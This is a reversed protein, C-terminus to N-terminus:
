RRPKEGHRECLWAALCPVHIHYSDRGTDDGGRAFEIEYEVEDQTVPALCIACRAGVGSGGWMGDPRRNPLTGAAIAERAKQRLVSEDTMRNAEARVAQAGDV